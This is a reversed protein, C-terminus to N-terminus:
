KMFNSGSSYFVSGSKLVKVACKASYKVTIDTLNLLAAIKSIYRIAEQKNDIDGYYTCILMDTILMTDLDTNKLSRIQADLEARSMNIYKSFKEGDNLEVKGSGLVVMECYELAKQTYGCSMLSVLVGIYSYRKNIPYNILRHQPINRNEKKVKAIIDEFSFEIQSKQKDIDALMNSLEHIENKADSFSQALTELRM